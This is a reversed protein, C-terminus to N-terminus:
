TGYGVMLVAHDLETKSCFVPNFVGKRYFQLMSADLAVSFPGTEVLAKQIETEDTSIAKWDDIKVAIDVKGEKCPFETANCYEVPPGCLTENYGPAQCPFCSGDGVCYPYDTEKPLGGAKLVYEFAL